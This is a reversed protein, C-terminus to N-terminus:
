KCQEYVLNQHTVRGTTVAVTATPPSLNSGPWHGILVYTGPPLTFRYTGSDTVLAQTFSAGGVMGSQDTFVEVTGAV